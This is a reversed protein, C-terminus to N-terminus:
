PLARRYTRINKGRCKGERLVNHFSYCGCFSGDTVEELGMDTLMGAITESDRENMQCGFVDIRFKKTKGSQLTYEINLNRVQEIWESSAPINENIKAFAPKSNKLSYMENNKKIDLNTDIGLSDGSHAPKVFM